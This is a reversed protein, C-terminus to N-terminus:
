VKAFSFQTHDPVITPLDASFFCFLDINEAFMVCLVLPAM